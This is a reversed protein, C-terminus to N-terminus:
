QRSSENGESSEDKKNKDAIAKKKVSSQIMSIVKDGVEEIIKQLDEEDEAEAPVEMEIEPELYYKLVNGGVEKPLITVGFGARFKVLKFKTMVERHPM